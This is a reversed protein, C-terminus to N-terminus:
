CSTQFFQVKAGDTTTAAVGETSAKSIEYGDSYFELRFPVAKGTFHIAYVLWLFKLDSVEFYCKSCVTTTAGDSASVIGKAGGCIKSPSEASDANKM